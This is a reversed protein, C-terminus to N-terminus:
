FIGEGSFEKFKGRVTAVMAHRVSFGIYSHVPDVNWKTSTTTM